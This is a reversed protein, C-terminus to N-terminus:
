ATWLLGLFVVRFLLVRCSALRLSCAASLLGLRGWSARLHGQSLGFIAGFPGLIAWSAELYGRSPGLIAELLGLIAGLLRLIAGLHGWSAELHGWSPGLISGLSGLLTEFHGWTRRIPLFVFNEFNTRRRPSVSTKLAWRSFTSVCISSEKLKQHVLRRRAQTNPSQSTMESTLMTSFAGVAM